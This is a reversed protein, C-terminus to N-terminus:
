ENKARIRPQIISKLLPFTHQLPTVPNKYGSTLSLNIIIAEVDKVVTIRYSNSSNEISQRDFTDNKIKQSKSSQNLNVLIPKFFVTQSFKISM